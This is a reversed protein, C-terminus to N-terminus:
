TVRVPFIVLMSGVLFSRSDALIHKLALMGHNDDGAWNEGLQCVSVV